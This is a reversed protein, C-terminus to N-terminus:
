LILLLGLAILLEEDADERLLLFLLLLLILDGTDVNEMHFRDLLHRLLHSIGDGDREEHPPPRSAAQPGPRDGGAPGHEARQEQGGKQRYEPEDEPIRTYRGQDNRIYRNYM